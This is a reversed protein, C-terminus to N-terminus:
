CAEAIALLADQQDGQGATVATMGIPFIEPLEDQLSEAVCRDIPEPFPLLYALQDISWANVAGAMDFAPQDGGPHTKGLPDDVFEPVALVGDASAAVLAESIARCREVRISSLVATADELTPVAPDTSTVVITMAEEGGFQEPLGTMWVVDTIAYGTAEGDTAEVIPVATGALDAEGVEAGFDADTLTAEQETAAMTVVVEADGVEFDIDSDGTGGTSGRQTWATPATLRFLNSSTAEIGMSCQPGFTNPEGPGSAAFSIVPHSTGSTDTDTDPEPDDGQDDAGGTDAATTTPEDSTVDDSTDDDSGCAAVALAASLLLVTIRRSRSAAVPPFPHSM